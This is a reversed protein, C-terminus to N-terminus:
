ATIVHHLLNVYKGVHVAKDDFLDIINIDSFPSVSMLTQPEIDGNECVYSIIDKLYDMQLANLTSGNLFETFKQLALQRDVKIVSRIFMAVNMNESQTYRVYEERSGLEEWMIHELQSIDDASLQELHFIKQFVADDRHESLYDLVRQKYTNGSMSVAAAEGGDTVIDEINLTFQKSQSSELNKVLERLEQRVRELMSMSANEFFGRRQVAKIMDLHQAIVPISAKEQLKKAIMFVRNESPITDVEKILKGLEIKLLILDFKEASEDDIKKVILPSIIDKLEQADVASLCTWAAKDRYKVVTPWVRRTSIHTDKIEGVQQFLLAKLQDHLAKEETTGSKCDSVQHEATQFAVAIDVRMCFLREALSQTAVSETGNPNEKFYEFNGCWDFIYFERKDQGYGFIGPSLRTGRGIMQKFRIGSLVPKFFVLNLIDPVDIGTDLMYVSVSVQPLSDREEFSDILTQSHEVYNDILRCFEPGFEPYLAGFREVVLEAHQHNYCFIISKGIKNGSQVKLGNEMLDQLMKDITDINFIYSFIEKSEINREYDENPDIEYKTKEYDFVPQLQERDEAALTAVEIGKELIQSKRVFGHYPVLYGDRIAEEYEYAFTNEPDMQLLNYTSRAVEDRPTATLGILFADFYDFIAGYKGFVSRHAEDIIILDFRGISFPKEDAEVYNIMTQYTSLMVRANLVTPDSKSDPGQENLECFTADTLYKAFGKTKAQKVLSTRDALFLVNKVWKNRMLLDTLSVAVRTKGTGTAMIILSSRHMKQLHDCVSRIARKQYERNTIDDRISLDAIRRRERRRQHLLMLDEESHFGFVEREPYGLGDIVRTTFGNSTYIVPRVGYRQELCDAYLKAQQRGKEVNVSTRKAEIVALPRLAADFLVYDAYGKGSPADPMGTVEIEVCACSPKVVGKMTGGEPTDLPAVEWGAETLMMDIFQHRTEAESLPSEPLHLDERPAAVNTPPVQAQFQPKPEPEKIPQVVAIRERKGVLDRDFPKIRNVLRLSQLIYGLVYHLDILTYLAQQPTIRKTPDQEIHAGRNGMTRVYKIDRWFIPDAGIFMRFEEHDIMQSLSLGDCNVNKMQLLQIVMWELAWRCNMVSLKPSIQATREAQKCYEQLEETEPVTKIFDFNGM